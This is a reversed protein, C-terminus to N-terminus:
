EMLKPPIPKTFCLFSTVGCLIPGWLMDVLGMELPWDKILAINTLEYVAYIALGLCAGKFTASSRTNTHKNLAFFLISFPIFIYVGIAAWLITDFNGQSLRAIKSAQQIYFDKMFLGLWLYDLLVIVTSVKLFSIINNLKIPFFIPTNLKYKNYKSGKHALLPEIMGIGSIRIILFTLLLPSFISIKGGDVGVAFLYFSWWILVEGFYNPHRTYKWLGKDLIKGKNENKLKFQMLQTDAITEFLFGIIFLSLAIFDTSLINKTNNVFIISLPYSIIGMLISQLLFVKLFSYINDKNGWSKRMNYYRIDEKKKYSRIFLYISLRLSWLTILVLILKSKVTLHAFSDIHFISILLFGLGWLTDAIDNKKIIKSLIYGSISIGICIKFTKFFIFDYM